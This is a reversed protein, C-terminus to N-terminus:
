RPLLVLRTATVAGARVAIAFRDARLTTTPPPTLGVTVTQPTANFLAVTGRTATYQAPVLQNPASGDALFNSDSSVGAVPAGTVDVAWALATGLNPDLTLGNANAAATLTQQPVAPLAVNDLAGNVLTLPVITPALRGTPDIVAITVTGLGRALAVNFVGNTDTMGSDRSEEVTIRLVGTAGNSCSRYDRLDTLTCVQGALHPDVAGLDGGLDGGGDTASPPKGAFEPFLTDCGALAAATVAALGVAAVAAVALVRM